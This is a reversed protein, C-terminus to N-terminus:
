DPGGQFFEEPTSGVPELASEAFREGFRRILFRRSSRRHQPARRNAEANRHSRIRGASNSFSDKIGAEKRRCLLCHRRARVRARHWCASRASKYHPILPASGLSALPWRAQLSDTFRRDAARTRYTRSSSGPSARSGNRSLTSSAGAGLNRLSPRTRKALADARRDVERSRPHAALVRSAHM